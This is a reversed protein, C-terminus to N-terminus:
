SGSYETGLFLFQFLILNNWYVIAVFNSASTNCWIWNLCTESKLYKLLEMRRSRPLTEGFTRFYFWMWILSVRNLIGKRIFISSMFVDGPQQWMESRLCIGMDITTSGKMLSSTNQCTSVTHGEIKLKLKLWDAILQLNVIM